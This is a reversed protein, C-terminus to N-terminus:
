WNSPARAGEVDGHVVCAGYLSGWAVDDPVFPMNELLCRAYELRGAKGMIDVVCCFHELGPAVGHDGAMGSFVCLGEHLLGVHNCAVLLHVFCIDSPAMGELLMIHFLLIGDTGHGSHAFAALATGFSVTDREPMTSFIRRLSALHGSRANAALALNWSLLSWAPMKELVSMTGYLDGYKATGQLLAEWSLANREPSSHSFVKSSGIEEAEIAILVNWSGADHEPMLDFVRKTEEIPAGGSHAIASLLANWALVSRAPARFFLRQVAEPDSSNAALIALWCIEDWSPMLDFARQAAEVEGARDFAQIMATWSVVNRELGVDFHKKAKALEGHSVFVAAMSNMSVVSWAPMLDFAFKARDLQCSNAQIMCTWSMVDREPLRDFLAKADATRGTQCYWNMITKLTVSDKAPIKELTEISLDKSGALFVNWSVLNRAPMSDFLIRAEELRDASASAHVMATWSVINRQPMRDFFVIADLKLDHRGAECDSLAGIMTTWSIVNRRPMRLFLDMAQLMQGNQAFAAVMVNWSVPDREPMRTFADVLADLSDNEHIASLMVNWAYLDRMPMLDFVAKACHIEGNQSLAAMAITWSFLNRQEMAAFAGWSRNPRDCRGYAQNGLYCSWRHRPDDSLRALTPEGGSSRCHLVVRAIANEPEELAVCRM